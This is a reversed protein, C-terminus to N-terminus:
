PLRQYRRQHVQIITKELEMRGTRPNIIIRKSRGTIEAVNQHGLQEIIYELPGSPMVISNVRAILKDRMREAERNIVPQDNDDYVPRTRITGNDDEYEEHQQIPFSQQLYGILNERPTMDLDELEQGEERRALSRTQQAEDTNVMQMVVALGNDIDKKIQKIASPMQMTTVVANFFRQHAGWFASYNAGAKSSVTLEVAEKINQLVFQWARALEDYKASQEEDLTHVLRDYSVDNYSLARALYLGLSKMNRAILEMTAIGGKSVENVFAIADNFPTQEGWLGLREAYILNEVETAGTASVYVIRAHPLRRQLEIGSLAQQSAKKVGREGKKPAANAMNHSEDFAIVGDFHEGCWDVIQNLRITLDDFTSEKDERLKRFQGRLTSYTSFLVGEDKQIHKGAKHRKHSILLDGGEDWGSETLDREADKILDWSESIWVAKKRGKEWNDRIIGSIERGKGVGTGDGIFFGRRNGNPLHKSHSQGAYIVAELQIDSLGTSDNPGSGEIVHMPLSPAYTTDPAETDAM